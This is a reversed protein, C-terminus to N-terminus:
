GAAAQPKSAPEVRTRARMRAWLGSRDVWAAYARYAPDRRLHREETRARWWYVGSVMALLVTARAADIVSGTSLVPLTALWWFANKSVYAPHRMWRYPGHTLIGRNTLNSFRPGFAVTAWAYIATLAVLAAGVAAQLWPHGGLWWHWDGTGPHYDLPGGNTMLVFPPYCILAAMWGQAYPNASRIHADLPRFTLVYGVTAVAMDILFMLAILAQALAVPNSLVGLVDTRVVQGFGGPAGGLMFPLFFAKVGWALLHGRVARRSVGAQGTLWAGLHWAGDRPDKLYRDIWVVYPVSLVVLVPAAWAICWMAFLFNGTWYFRGAFFIVAIAGWTAWLGAIKTFSVDLTEAMPRPNAWDIGTTPSRHVRDVLLSWAVMAGACAAIGVLASYAGDLAHGRAVLLWAALGALGAWGAGGSVASPPRPDAQGHSVAAALSRDHYM